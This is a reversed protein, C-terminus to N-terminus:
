EVRTTAQGDTFELILRQEPTTQAVRSILVGKSDRVVVFGRELTKQYSLVELLQSARELKERADHTLRGSIRALNQSHFDLGQRARAVQERPHLLRGAVQLLANRSQQIQARMSNFLRDGVHDFMQNKLELLRYPNGLRAELTALSQRQEQLIRGLARTQRQAFDQVTGLLHLREPVAMEAAATPTPARRDAAYDILTTDTEHGVASILPIESAAAARVVSEENFAMLDELSGGGRAVILLDPRPLPGTAPLANFGHIAAAIKDAAGEGQVPVPWVLVHVPFRDDLRHIIDRIVAGTPSTVVGIVRPLYPLAQKKEAAFLGEAALRQRRDELMKLLAGQGALEMQEIVLQYNSRAPYTTIKGTCIVELGEEPRVALKALAARWCVVNILSDADKLDSYMHGSTHIKVKSLEGRVRVRGFTDELTKKLSFALESVSLEPVNTPGAM